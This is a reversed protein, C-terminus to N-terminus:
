SSYSLLMARLFLRREYSNLRSARPNLSLVDKVSRSFANIISVGEWTNALAM